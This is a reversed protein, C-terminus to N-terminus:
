YSRPTPGTYSGLHTPGGGFMGVDDGTRAEALECASLLVLVIITRKMDRDMVERAVGRLSKGLRLPAQPKRAHINQSGRATQGSAIAPQM